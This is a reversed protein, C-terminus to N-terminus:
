TWAQCLSQMSDTSVQSCSPRATERGNGSDRCFFFFTLLAQVHECNVGREAGVYWSRWEIPDKEEHLLVVLVTTYCKHVCEFTRDCPLWPFSKKLSPTRITSSCSVFFQGHRHPEANENSGNLKKQMLSIRVTCHSMRHFMFELISARGHSPCSMGLKSQGRRNM